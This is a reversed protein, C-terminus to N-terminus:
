FAIDLAAAKPTSSLAPWSHRRTPAKSSRLSVISRVKKAMEPHGLANLDAKLTAINDPAVFIYKISDNPIKDSVYHHGYSNIPHFTIEKENMGFLVKGKRTEDGRVGAYQGWAVWYDEKSIISIGHLNCADEPEPAEGRLRRGLARQSYSLEGYDFARKGVDNFCEAPLPRREHLGFISLLGGYEAVGTVAPLASGHVYDVGHDKLTQLILDDSPKQTAPRYGESKNRKRTNALIDPLAM